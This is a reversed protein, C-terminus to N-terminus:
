VATTRHSSKIYIDLFRENYLFFGLGIYDRPKVFSCVSTEELVWMPVVDDGFGIMEFDNVTKSPISIFMIKVIFTSLHTIRVQDLIASQWM